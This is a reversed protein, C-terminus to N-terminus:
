EDGSGRTCEIAKKYEEELEDKPYVICLLGILLMGALLIYATTIHAAMDPAIEGNLNATTCAYEIMSPCNETKVPIFWNDLGVGVIEFPKEDLPSLPYFVTVLMSGHEMEMITNTKDSVLGNTFSVSVNNPKEEIGDLKIQITKYGNTEKETIDLLTIEPQILDITALMLIGSFGLCVIILGGQITTLSGTKTKHM